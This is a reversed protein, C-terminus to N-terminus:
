WSSALKYGPKRNARSYPWAVTCAYLLSGSAAQVTGVIRDSTAPVMARGRTARLLCTLLFVVFASSSVSGSSSPRDSYSRYWFALSHLQSVNLCGDKMSVVMFSHLRSIHLYTTKFSHLAVSHGARRRRLHLPTHPNLPPHLPLHSHPRPHQHLDPNFVKYKMYEMCIDYTKGRVEYGM